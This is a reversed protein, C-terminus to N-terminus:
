EKVRGSTSSSESVLQAAVEEPFARGSRTGACNFVDLAFKIAHELQQQTQVQERLNKAKTAFEPKTLISRVAQKLEAKSVRKPNIKLGIGLREVRAANGFQDWVGPCVVMPVGFYVAERFSGLGGHTLFLSARRLVELQAVQPAIRVNAPIPLGCRLRTKGTHVLVTLAPMEAFAAIVKEWFAGSWPYHYTGLSCYVLVGPESLTAGADCRDPDVSIGAYIRPRALRHHIPFDLEEPAFVIEPLDLKRGYESRTFTVGCNRLESKFHVRVANGRLYFSEMSRVCANALAFHLDIMTWALANRFIGMASANPQLASTVPPRKYSKPCALTINFGVVPIGRKLFPRAWTWMPEDILVGKIQRKRILSDLQTWSFRVGFHGSWYMKRLRGEPTRGAKEEEALAKAIDVTFYDFGQRQIHSEFESPGTFISRYGIRNLRRAFALTANYSSYEPFNVFLIDNEQAPSM